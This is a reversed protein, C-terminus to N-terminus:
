NSMIQEIVGDRFCLGRQYTKHPCFTYGADICERACSQQTKYEIPPSQALTPLLLPGLLLLRKIIAM